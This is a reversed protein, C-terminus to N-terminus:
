GIKEGNIWLAGGKSVIHIKRGNVPNELIINTDVELAAMLVAKVADKAVEWNTLREQENM